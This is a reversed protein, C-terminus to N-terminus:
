APQVPERPSTGDVDNVVAGPPAKVPGKLLPDDTTRMWRDLRARMDALAERAAPDAARNSTENPDFVLDYLQEPEITRDRWGYKLWIDKSLGDDCNPLVPKRRDGFNRIYKWRATRVARKPEYCAHYNVEAHIEDRIKGRAGSMLPLMSHGQLWQPHKAGALDCITPFVDIQSVLADSVKGGTFGGPGRLILSVGIGHDTLNCKMYPFAVGHDTTSIVLTTEALGATALADLVQGVATDMVRASAKYGAMDLRSQAMDPIAAPPLCYRPDEDPGPKEFERHTEFFGVDLFFPQKPANKLWKAAAPGVDVASNRRYQEVHDYGIAQASKHVHQVGLLATTFGAGKLTHVIHQRIDNLVFGRHALGFMGNSHACMGTLLAARSPSCTPAADYANRFLVGEGALKQLHPTPIAHGYPQIYRGTDHSHLYLINPPRKGQTLAGRAAAMGALFERRIMNM